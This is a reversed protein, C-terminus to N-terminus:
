GLVREIIGGGLILDQDYFVASQGPTIAFQPKFFRVKIKKGFPVVVAQAEKHNYRIRVRVAVKKQIPSLVFHVNKVLFERKFAKSKDGVIIRNSSTDIRTIYLPHGRAIGLGERQGVTYYAIGQHIGLIEGQEDQILGPQIDGAVHEQLFKRYDNDPLFCIEQSGAKDAVSLHFKRALCRAREKTYDGLPFVIHKLQSQRLRYLFYSQDKRADRAKKLQLGDKTKIIRAYHGTALFAADLALARKLLAGFKIYQNCRVCPNPTRGQLYEKCFDKIVEDQLAKQMSLVYHRIGLQSAVKRADETALTGCCTPKKSHGQPLDFCMTIGIVEFGKEKLLAAAVSSDVGGSMAVLVRTKM